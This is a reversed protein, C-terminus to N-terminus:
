SSCAYGWPAYRAQGGLPREGTKLRSPSPSM